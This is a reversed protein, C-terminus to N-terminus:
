IASQAESIIKVAIVNEGTLVGPGTSQTLLSQLGFSKKKYKNQSSYETWLLTDVEWKLIM